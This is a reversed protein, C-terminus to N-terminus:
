HGAIGAETAFRGLADYMISMFNCHRRPTSRHDFHEAVPPPGRSARLM